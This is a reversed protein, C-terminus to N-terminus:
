TNGWENYDQQRKLVPDRSDEDSDEHEYPGYFSIRNQKSNVRKVNKMNNVEIAEDDEEVIFVKEEEEVQMQKREEGDNDEAKEEEQKKGNFTIILMFFSSTSWHM